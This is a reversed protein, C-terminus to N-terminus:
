QMAPSISLFRRTAEIITASTRQVYLTIRNLLDRADAQDTRSRLFQFSLAFAPALRSDFLDLFQRVLGQAIDLRQECTALPPIEPQLNAATLAISNTIETAVDTLGENTAFMAVEELLSRGELFSSALGQILTGAFTLQQDCTGIGMGVSPLPVNTVPLNPVAVNQFTQRMIPNMQAMLLMMPNIMGPFQM